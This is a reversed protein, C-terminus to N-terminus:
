YETNDMLSPQTPRRSTRPMKTSGYKSRDTWFLCSEFLGILQKRFESAMLSYIFINVLCNTNMLIICIVKFLRLRAKTSNCVTNDRFSPAMSLFVVIPLTLSIFVFNNTALMYSVSKAKVSVNPNSSQSMRKRINAATQQQSYSMRIEESNQQTQTVISCTRKRMKSLSLQLNGEDLSPRYSSLNRSTNLLGVVIIISCIIMFAFPILVNMSLDIYVWLSYFKTFRPINEPSCYIVNVDQVLEDQIFEYENPYFFFQVNLLFLCVFIFVMIRLANNTTNWRRARSTHKGKMSFIVLIVRDLSVAAVTWASFQPLFYVLFSFLKCLIIHKQQLDINFQYFFIFNICFTYLQFLDIISLCSLYFFTSSKKLQPRTLVTFSLLNTVTGALFYIWPYYVLISNTLDILYKFSELDDNFCNAPDPSGDIGYQQQTRNGSLYAQLDNGRELGNIYSYNFINEFGNSGDGGGDFSFLGM